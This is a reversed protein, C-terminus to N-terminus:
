LAQLPIIPFSALSDEVNHLDNLEDELKPESDSHNAITPSTEEAFVNDEFGDKQKSNFDLDEAGDFDQI